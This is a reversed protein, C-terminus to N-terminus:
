DLKRQRTVLSILLLLVIFGLMPYYNWAMLPTKGEMPTVKNTLIARINKPLVSEIHGMPNIIATVGTNTDYLIYRGTELARMQAMQIQQPSAISDGFWSDDSVVVMLQKNQTTDLVESPYAIEYCIFPAIPIGHAILTEQKKPGPSFNSMPMNFYQVLGGWVLKLPVYEGFPVLHRKLYVGKGNGLVMMSNFYQNTNPQYTPVGLILATHHKKAQQNMLQFYFKVQQPIAPIAAEPWVIIDSKWVKATENQYIKLINFLHEPSWKITQSINGQVLSVIIPKGAPKTWLIPSFFLGVSFIVLILFVSVTKILYNKHIILLLLCGSILTVLFSIGYVGFLPAFGRLVSHLQSYGLFLWPFGTFVWTRLWEWIIWMAPFAFLCKLTLRSRKFLWAFILGQTAPFFALILIFLATIFTALPISAYGYTHISIYVWYTGTTFLGIGFFGGRWFAQWPSARLWTYLLIAPSIFAIPYWNFPAFALPLIAGAILTTLLAFFNNKM